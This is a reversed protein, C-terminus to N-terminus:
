SGEGLKKRLDAVARALAKRAAERADRLDGHPYVARVKAESLYDHSGDHPSLLAREMRAATDTPDEGLEEALEELFPTPDGDMALLILVRRRVALAPLLALVRERRDLGAIAERPDASPTPPPPVEIDERIPIVKRAAKRAAEKEPKEQRWREAEVQPSWGRAMGERAHRRRREKRFVDVLHNKLVRRRWGIPSSVGEPALARPEKGDVSLCLAELAGALWDEVEQPSPSRLFRRVRPRWEDALAEVAREGAAPDGEHVWASLDDQIADPM